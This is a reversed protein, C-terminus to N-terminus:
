QPAADTQPLDGSGILGEEILHYGLDQGTVRDHLSRGSNVKELVNQRTSKLQDISCGAIRAASAYYPRPPKGDGRILHGFLAAMRRVETDSLTRQRPLATAHGHSGAPRDRALRYGTLGDVHPALSLRVQVAFTWEIMWEGPQLLVQAHPEYLAGGPSALLDGRVRMRAIRGKVLHRENEVIWGNPTWGIRAFERPVRRDPLRIGARESRGITVPADVDLVFRGSEVGGVYARAAASWPGNRIM